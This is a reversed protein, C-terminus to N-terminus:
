TFVKRTDAVHGRCMPCKSGVPFNKICDSCAILHFCPMILHTRPGDMCIMCESEVAVAKTAAPKKESQSASEPINQAAKKKAKKSLEQKPEKSGKDQQQEQQQQKKQQPLDVAAANKGKDAVRLANDLSLLILYFSSL